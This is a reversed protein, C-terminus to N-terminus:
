GKTQHIPIIEDEWEEPAELDEMLPTSDDDDKVTYYKYAYDYGYYGYETSNAKMGNLVVGYIRAGINGLRQKFRRMLHISSKGVMAVLVVGDVLTSIIAADTFSIAPPSDIIIHKYNGKLFQLLNKMENSSLLETPNPPIPGSTIVKLKPLEPFPKLLNETKRDGSLYNTLGHTNEMGFHSHLRPRRLDCDIIVVDAGAQALTIATNIATTTKGEAPQSSTILITKPPHGANSFLLSTRLHRYAEGMASKNDELSILAMSGAPSSIGNGNAAGLLRRKGGRELTSQYPIMALTPLGLHRSVDDSSRVSDDLYDLLFALGIGAALSILFAIFINRNRQPGVPSNNVQAETSMKVNDPRSSTIALEQEKQRQTYTDLLGRNTTIENKLTTLRLEARGDINAKDEETKYLSYLKSERGQAADLQSRLGVLAGSIADSNIKKQDKDITETVDKETQAKIRKLEEIEKQKQQVLVYEPTYKVLFQAKENEADNIQKEIERIRDQLKARQENNQRITEQYIRQDTLDPISTGEGRANAQLATKYRAEIKLRENAAEQYQSYATQLTTARFEGGKEGLPLNSSGLLNLLQLEQGSIAAKLDEISKSLEEYSQKAGQTERRIDQDIFVEVVQNATQAAVAPSTSRVKVYVINTKEEQEVTLGGLLTGTYRETLEKEEPTLVIQTTDASEVDANTLTPLTDTKENETKEGSFVSRLTSFFGRNQSGLLNPQRYFSNKIVVERMLDPNELLRLQTNYYNLDNGFNINIADKSTVKPKRPEIIMEATAQYESPQSYMYFAVITTILVTLAIIIPLRKYVVSFYERISRSDSFDGEYMPSYSAPYDQNTVSQLDKENPLPLLREDKEM